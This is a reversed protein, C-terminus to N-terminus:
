EWLIDDDDVFPDQAVELLPLAPVDTLIWENGEELEQLEADTLASVWLGGVGFWTGNGDHLIATLRTRGTEPSPETAARTANDTDDSMTNMVIVPASESSTTLQCATSM